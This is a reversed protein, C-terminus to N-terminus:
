IRKYSRTYSFDILSIFNYIEVHSKLVVRINAIGGGRRRMVKRDREV